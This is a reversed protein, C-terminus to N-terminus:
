LGYFRTATGGWIDALDADPLDELITEAAERWRDYGGAVNVVPWDSGWMVRSAGFTEVVHEVYPRIDDVSWDPNAETVVGSLKIVVHPVDAIRRLDDAWGDFARDRVQPKSCHDVVIRLAPWRDILTELNKLHRPFTLADFTMDHDIAAQFAPALDDRLMWDDDPIDQIMPRFGVLKDRKAMAAVREPANDAEFDVWGVVARVTPERAAISLMFDTEAETPAAQVLVTGAIGYRDLFPELDEPGYDKRLVSDPEPPMWFYDGRAVQWYHQHSDIRDTM